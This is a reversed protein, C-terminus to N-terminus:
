QNGTGPPISPWNNTTISGIRAIFRRVIRGVRDIGRPEDRVTTSVTERTKAPTAAHTTPVTLTITVVVFLTAVVTKVSSSRM